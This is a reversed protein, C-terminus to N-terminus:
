FYHYEVEEIEEFARLLEALNCYEGSGPDAM